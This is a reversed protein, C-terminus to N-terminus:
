ARRAAPHDPTTRLRQVHAALADVPRVPALVARPLAGRRGQGRRLAVAGGAALAGPHAAGAARRVRGGDLGARGPARRVPPRGGAGVRHRRHERIRRDGPRGRLPPRRDPRGPPLRGGAAGGRVDRGDGGGRARRRAGPAGRGRRGPEAPQARGPPRGGHGRRRPGAARRGPALRHVRSRRHRAGPGSLSRTASPPSWWSSARRRIRPSRCPSTATRPRRPRRCRARRPSRPSRRFSHLVPYRTTQIGRSALEARVQRRM